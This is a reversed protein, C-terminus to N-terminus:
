GLWLSTIYLRRTSSMTDIFAHMLPYLCNQCDNMLQNMISIEIDLIASPLDVELRSNSLPAGSVARISHRLKVGFRWLCSCTFSKGLTGIHHSSRSEFEHGEARYTDVRGILWSAWCDHLTTAGLRRNAVELGLQRNGIMPLRTNCIQPVSPSSMPGVTKLLGSITLEPCPCLLVSDFSLIQLDKQWSLQQATRVM